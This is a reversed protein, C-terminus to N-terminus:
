RPGYINGPETASGPALAPSPVIVERPDDYLQITVTTADPFVEALRGEGDCDAAHEFRCISDVTTSFLHYGPGILGLLDAADTGESLEDSAYVVLYRASAGLVTDPGADYPSNSNLAGNRNTDDYLVILALGLRAPVTGALDNFTLATEPPTDFVSMSFSALGADVEARQEIVPTLQNRSDYGIWFLSLNPSTAAAGTEAAVTEVGGRLTLAPTGLYDPGVLPTGCATAAAAAAIAAAALLLAEVNHV